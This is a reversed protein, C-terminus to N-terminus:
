SHIFNLKLPTTNFINKFRIAFLFTIVNHCLGSYFYDCDDSVRPELGADLAHVNEWGLHGWPFVCVQDRVLLLVGTWDSAMNVWGSAMHVLQVFLSRESYPLVPFGMRMHENPAGMKEQNCSGM